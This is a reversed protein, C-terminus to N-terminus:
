RGGGQSDMYLDWDTSQGLGPFEERQQRPTDIRDGQQVVPQTQACGFLVLCLFIAMLCNKLWTATGNM